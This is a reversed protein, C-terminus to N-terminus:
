RPWGSQGGMLGRAMMVSERHAALIDAIPHSLSYATLRPRNVAQPASVAAAVKGVQTEATPKAITNM